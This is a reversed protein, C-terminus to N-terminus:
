ILFFCSKCLYSVRPRESQIETAVRLIPAISQLSSPVVEKDFVEMSFATTASRSPRRALSPELGTAASRESPRRALSPEQGHNSAM